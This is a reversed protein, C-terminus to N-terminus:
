AAEGRRSLPLNSAEAERVLRAGAAILAFGLRRRARRRRAPRLNGEAAAAKALREAHVISYVERALPEM